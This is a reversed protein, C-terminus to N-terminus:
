QEFFSDTVHKIVDKSKIKELSKAIKEGLTLGEQKKRLEENIMTMNEHTRKKQTEKTMGLVKGFRERVHEVFSAGDGILEGEITYM